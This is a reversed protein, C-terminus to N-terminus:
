ITVRPCLVLIVPSIALQHHLSFLQQGTVANLPFSHVRDNLRDRTYQLNFRPSDHCHCHGNIERDVAADNRSVAIPRYHGCCRATFQDCHMKFTLWDTGPKVTPVDSCAFPLIGRPAAPVIYVLSTKKIKVVLRAMNMKNNWHNWSATSAITNKTKPRRGEKEFRFTNLPTFCRVCMEVVYLANLRRISFCTAVNCLHTYKGIFCYHFIPSTLLRRWPTDPNVHRPIYSGPVPHSNSPSSCLRWRVVALQGAVSGM